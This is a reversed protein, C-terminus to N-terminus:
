ILNTPFENLIDNFHSEIKIVWHSQTDRQADSHAHAYTKHTAREYYITNTEKEYFDSLNIMKEILGYNLCAIGIKFFSFM